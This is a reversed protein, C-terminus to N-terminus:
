GGLDTDYANDSLALGMQACLEHSRRSLTAHVRDRTRMDNLIWGIDAPHCLRGASQLHRITIIAPGVDCLVPLPLPLPLIFRHAIWSVPSRRDLGQRADIRFHGGGGGLKLLEELWDLTLGQHVILTRGQYRTFFRDLLRGDRRRAYMRM